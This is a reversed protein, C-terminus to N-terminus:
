PRITNEIGSIVGRNVLNVMSMHPLRDFKIEGVKIRGRAPNKGRILLNAFLSKLGKKDRTGDESFAIKLDNYLMRLDGACEGTYCYANFYIGSCFGEEFWIGEMPLLLDNFHSLTFPGVEGSFLFDINEADYPFILSTNFAVDQQVKGSFDLKLSDKAREKYHDSSLNSLNIELDSLEARMFDESKNIFDRYVLQGNTGKLLPINVPLLLTDLAAAPLLRQKEFNRPLGHYRYIAAKVSDSFISDAVIVGRRLLKRLSFGYAVANKFNIDYVDTGYEYSMALEFPDVTPAINVGEIALQGTEAKFNLNDYKLAYNSGPFELYQEELTIELSDVYLRMYDSDGKSQLYLGNIKAEESVFIDTTDAKEADTFYFNAKGLEIEELEIRDMGFFTVSDMWTRPDSEELLLTDEERTGKVLTTFISDVTFEKVRLNRAFLIKWPSFGKLRSGHAVMSQLQSTEISASDGEIPFIEITAISLQGKLPSVKIGKVIPNFGKPNLVSQLSSTVAKDAARTFLYDGTLFLIVLIVLFTLIWKKNSSLM